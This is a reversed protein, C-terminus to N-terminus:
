KEDGKDSLDAETLMYVRDNVVQYFKTPLLHKTVWGHLLAGLEAEAAGDVAPFDEAYECGSDYARVAIMEIVDDANCLDAATPRVATGVYVIDGPQYDDGWEGLLDSLSDYRFEEGDRSWCEQDNKAAPEAVGRQLDAEAVTAARRQGEAIGEQYAKGISKWASGDEPDIEELLNQAAGFLINEKDADDTNCAALMLHDFAARVGRRFEDGEAVGARQAPQEAEHGVIARRYYEPDSTGLQQAAPAPAEGHQGGRMKVCALCDCPDVPKGGLAHAVATEASQRPTVYGPVSSPEIRKAAPAYEDLVKRLEDANVTFQHTVNGGGWAKPGAIRDSTDEDGVRLSHGEAGLAVEILVFGKKM